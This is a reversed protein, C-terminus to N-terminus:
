WRECGDKSLFTEGDDYVKGDIDVCSCQSPVVCQGDINEVYGPPCECSVQCTDVESCSDPFALSLCTKACTCREKNEKGPPCEECEIPCDREEIFSGDCEEGGYEAKKTIRRRRTQTTTECITSCKTWDSWTSWVCDVTLSSSNVLNINPLRITLVYNNM